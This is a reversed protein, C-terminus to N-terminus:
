CRTIRTSLIKFWIWYNFRAIVWCLHQTRVKRVEETRVLQILAFFHVRILHYRGRDIFFRGVIRNELGLVCPGLM